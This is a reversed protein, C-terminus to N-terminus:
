TRVSCSASVVRAFSPRRFLLPFVVARALPDVFNAPNAHERVGARAVPADRNLLAASRAEHVADDM